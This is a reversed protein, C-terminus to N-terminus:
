VIANVPTPVIPSTPDSSTAPDVSGGSHNDLPTDKCVGVDLVALKVAPREYIGSATQVTACRVQGDAGSKTAIVRGKPWCNRPFNQDVIVVIDGVEIPKAPSFWKTRRTISPLYDRLWQKWFQNALVQSLKWCNRLVVPSDDFPVWTMLGNSSGLLFHNPTLVPSEDDELPISTLPRSNVVNEVEILVNELVEHSLTSNPKLKSLNQKVTRILREWAGGMHPSAPPNFSWSTHPTTFETMLRQHDLNELASKLEKSTGRFNTGQDSYIVAPTGRRGIVNRLAMVCSDTSLTHAIQLHIARITLCTAILVWRKETKRNVTVMIPGFYDVGMHTFPRSYAALRGSPLDSMAPPMPTVRDNMCEQCQKRIANYVSKLRPIRYRQRIENLVTNHNQHHYKRHYHHVILRTVHHNRPLIIPNVVDYDILQCAGTRGQVLRPYSTRRRVRLNPGSTRQKTKIMQRSNCIYRFVYATSRLMTTWKSFNQPDVVSETTSVHLLLHARLEMDTTGCQRSSPWETESRRLFEPGKFWRSSPSLDPTHAWKTGEDAVNQKTPVWRWDDKDTVELIESVRFAVFQSYRRHDSNLWCIVDRSDTWFYRKKIGFNLSQAVSNALRMGLVSAQLESRPISLFRLPAVLTKASVFAIEINDGEEFRLYVVAAFGNESADVFTHLERKTPGSLLDDDYRPSVKFTFCDMTTNWWLGLVKETVNEQGIGLNKEIAAGEHLSALVVSSNSIWNRMEFGGAAHIYKVEQALKIAEEATEVSALMDDVYHKRVIADVAQPFESKFRKANINNVYQATSPSCCAGFTMVMMTYVEPSMNKADEKWYFRLCHQDEARMLVQHFMEKIDGCVAVRHERFQILVSWLSSLQDPGKLLVSNLSIGHVTAAADWVLRLKGPKNQNYVPFVPLYWERPQCNKLEDATLKRVYGKQVYEAMKTRLAKALCKDNKMRRELCEWRRLAMAKSDPLRAADYKWLLGSEFRGDKPRTVAELIDMARQDEVSLLLKDPNQIGM